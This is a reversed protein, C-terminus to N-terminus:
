PFLVLRSVEEVKVGIQGTNAPIKLQKGAELITARPDVEDSLDNCANLAEHYAFSISRISADSSVNLVEHPTRLEIAKSEVAFSGDIELNRV